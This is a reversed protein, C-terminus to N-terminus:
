EICQMRRLSRFISTAELSILEVGTKETNTIHVHQAIFCFPEPGEM